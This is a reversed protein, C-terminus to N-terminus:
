MLTKEGTGGLVFIPLERLKGIGGDVDGGRRNKRGGPNRRRSTPM